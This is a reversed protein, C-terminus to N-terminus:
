RPRRVFHVLFMAAAHKTLSKRRLSSIAFESRLIRGCIMKAACDGDNCNIAKSRAVIDNFVLITRESMGGCAIVHLPLILRLM